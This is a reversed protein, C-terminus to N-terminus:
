VSNARTIFNKKNYKRICKLGNKDYIELEWLGEGGFDIFRRRKSKLWVSRPKV